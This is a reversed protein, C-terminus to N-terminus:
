RGAGWRFRVSQGRHDTALHAFLQCDLASLDPALWVHDIDYLPCYSPFTARWGFAADSARRYGAERFADFGISRGVANFDGAIIDYGEGRAAAARCADAVERLPGTRLIRPDSELDVVMLRLPRVPHGITVSVTRGHTVSQHRVERLAWRSMVAFRTRYRPNAEDAREIVRWDERLMGRLQEADSSSPAESLVVVDPTQRVIEEAMGQWADKGWRRGGWQVNWHVLRVDAAPGTSAAPYPRVPPGFAIMPLAAVAVAGAGLAALGFRLRSLARGGRLLDHGVAWLGIPILPLYMLLALVVHRDRLVHGVLGLILLPPTLCVSLRDILGITRPLVRLRPPAPQHSLEPPRSTTAEDTM